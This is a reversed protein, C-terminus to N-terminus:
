SVSVSGNVPWSSPMRARQEARWFQGFIMWVLVAVSYQCDPWDSTVVSGAPLRSAVSRFAHPDIMEGAGLM